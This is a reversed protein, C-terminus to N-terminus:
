YNDLDDAENYHRRPKNKKGSNKVGELSDAARTLWKALKRADSSTLLPAQEGFVDFVIGSMSSSNASWEGAQVNLTPNEADAGLLNVFEITQPNNVTLSAV